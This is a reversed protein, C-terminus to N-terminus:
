GSRVAPLRLEFFTEGPKDTGLRYAGELSAMLRNLRQIRPDDDEVGFRATASIAVVAQDADRGVAVGIRDGEESAELVKQLCSFIAQQLAFANGRGWVEGSSPEHELRVKKLDAFRRALSVLNETAAGIDFEAEVDDLSHAFRNLRSVIEVGKRVQRDIRERVTQLRRPDIPRGAAVGAALDELLGQAQDIVSLANNLEHTVSAALTGFFALGDREASGSRGPSM